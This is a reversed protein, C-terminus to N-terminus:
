SCDRHNEGWDSFGYKEKAMVFTEMKNNIQIIDQDQSVRLM